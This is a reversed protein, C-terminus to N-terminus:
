GDVVIAHEYSAIQLENSNECISTNEPYKYYLWKM